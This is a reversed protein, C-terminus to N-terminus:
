GYQIVDTNGDPKFTIEIAQCREVPAGFYKPADNKLVFNDGGNWKVLRFRNPTEIGSFVQSQLYAKFLRDTIAKKQDRPIQSSSQYSAMDVIRNLEKARGKYCAHEKSNVAANGGLFLARIVEKNTGWGSPGKRNVPYADIDELITNENEIFFLKLRNDYISGSVDIVYRKGTPQGNLYLNGNISIVRGYEDAVTSWFNEYGAEIAISDIDKMFPFKKLIEGEFTGGSMSTDSKMLDVAEEEPSSEVLESFDPVIKKNTIDATPPEPIGSVTLTPDNQAKVKKQPTPKDKSYVMSDEEPKIDYASKAAAPTEATNGTTIPAAITEDKTKTTETTVSAVKEVKSPNIAPVPKSDPKSTIPKTTVPKPAPATPNPKAVSRSNSTSQSEPPFYIRGGTIAAIDDSAYGPANRVTCSIDNCINDLALGISDFIGM